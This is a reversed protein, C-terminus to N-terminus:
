ASLTRRAVPWVDRPLRRAHRTNRERFLDAATEDAFSQIM